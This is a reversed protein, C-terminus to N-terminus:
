KALIAVYECFNSKAVLDIGIESGKGCLCDQWGDARRTVACLSVAFAAFVRLAFIGETKM